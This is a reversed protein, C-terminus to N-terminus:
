KAVGRYEQENLYGDGDRDYEKFQKLNLDKVVASLEVASVKGDKNEDVDGFTNGKTKVRMRALGEKKSGAARGTSREMSAEGGGMSAEKKSIKAIRIGVGTYAVSVYSGVKIEEMRRFGKLVPNTTDFTVVKGRGKVLITKAESDLRVVVGAFGHGGRSRVAKKEKLVVPGSPSASGKQSGQGPRDQGYCQLGFLMASM